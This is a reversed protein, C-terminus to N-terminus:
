PVVKVRICRLRYQSCRVVTTGDALTVPYQTLPRWAPEGDRPLLEYTRGDLTIRDGVQPEVPGAGFDLDGPRVLFDAPEAELNVRGDALAWRESRVRGPVVALTIPTQGDRTYTAPVSENEALTAALWEAAAALM